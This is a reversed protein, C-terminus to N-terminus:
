LYKKANLGALARLKYCRKVYEPKMEQWKDCELRKEYIRLQMRADAKLELEALLKNIAELRTTLAQKQKEDVTTDIIKTIAVYQRQLASIEEALGYRNKMDFSSEDDNKAAITM